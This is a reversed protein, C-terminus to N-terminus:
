PITRCAINSRRRGAEVGDRARSSMAFCLRDGTRPRWTHDMPARRIQEPGLASTSENKCQQGIRLWDWTAGYWRGGFQAFVWVNGEVDIQEGPNGLRSRGLRGAGTHYVCIRHGSVDIRTIRSVVEWGSIDRHLYRVSSADIEDGSGGSGGGSGGSGGGSGGSGGGSGGSGGGGSGGPAPTPTATQFKVSSWPGEEVDDTARVQWWYETDADLDASIRFTTTGGADPSAEQRSLQNGRDRLVFEYKVQGTPFRVAGNLVRFERTTRPVDNGKPFELDPPDLQKPPTRFRAWDSWESVATEDQGEVVAFEARARWRYARGQNLATKLEVPFPFRTRGGDGQAGRGEDLPAGADDAGERLQFRYEFAPADVASPIETARANEVEVAVSLGDIVADDKPSVAVPAEAKLRTVDHDVANVAPPVGFAGGSVPGAGSAAATLVPAGGNGPMSAPDQAVSSPAGPGGDGCAGAVIPVLSVWALARGASNSFHFNM